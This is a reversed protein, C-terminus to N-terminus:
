ISVNFSAKTMVAESPSLYYVSPLKLNALDRNSMPVGQQWDQQYNSNILLVRGIPVVITLNHVDTVNTIFIGSMDRQDNVEQFHLYGKFEGAKCEM